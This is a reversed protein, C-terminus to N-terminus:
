LFQLDMLEHYLYKVGKSGIHVSSMSSHLCDYVYLTMWKFSSFYVEEERKAKAKREAELEVAQLEAVYSNFLTERDERRVTRYRPDDRLKDKIQLLM